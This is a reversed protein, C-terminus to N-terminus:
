EKPEPILKVLDQIIKITDVGEAEAAFSPVIRHRLVSVANARVDETSVYTSGRLIARIALRRPLCRIRPADIEDSGAVTPDGQHRVM